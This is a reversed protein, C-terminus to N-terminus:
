GVEIDGIPLTEPVSPLRDDAGETIFAIDWDSYPHHDGCARSGFLVATRAEPWLALSEAAAKQIATLARDYEM